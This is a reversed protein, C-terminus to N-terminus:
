IRLDLQTQGDNENEVEAVIQSFRKQECSYGQSRLHRLLATRGERPQKNWQRRIWIKVESDSLRQKPTQEVPRLNKLRRKIEKDIATREWGSRPIIEELLWVLARQNLTARPGNLLGEVAVGIPLFCSWLVEPVEAEAVGTAVIFLKEPGVREALGAL